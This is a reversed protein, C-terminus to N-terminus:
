KHWLKVVMKKCIYILVYGTLKKQFFMDFRMGIDFLRRPCILSDFLILYAEFIRFSLVKKHRLCNERTM